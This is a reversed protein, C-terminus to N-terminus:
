GTAGINQCMTKRLEYTWFVHYNLIHVLSLLSFPGAMNSAVFMSKKKAEVRSFYVQAYARMIMIGVFFHPASLSFCCFSKSSFFFLSSSWLDFILSSLRPLPPYFGWWDFLWFLWIILYDFLWIILYDFLWVILYDFLWIILYDFLDFFWFILYILHILIDIPLRYYFIKM